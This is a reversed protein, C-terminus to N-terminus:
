DYYIRLFNTWSVLMSPLEIEHGCVEVRAPKLGGEFVRSESRMWRSGGGTRVIGTIEPRFNARINTYNTKAAYNLM